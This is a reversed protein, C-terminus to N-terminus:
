PRGALTVPDAVLHLAARLRSAKTARELLIITGYRASGL